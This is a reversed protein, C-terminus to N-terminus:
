RSEKKVCGDLRYTDKALRNEVFFQYCLNDTKDTSKLAAEMVIEKRHPDLIKEKALPSFRVIKGTTKDFLKASINVLTPSKLTQLNATFTVAPTKSATEIITTKLDQLREQVPTVVFLYGPQYSFGFSIGGAKGQVKKNQIPEFIPKFIAFGIKRDKLRVKGALSENASVNFVDHQTELSFEIQFYKLCEEGTKEVGDIDCAPQYSFKVPNQTINQLSFSVVEDVNTTAQSMPFVAATGQALALECFFLPLIFISKMFFDGSNFVSM